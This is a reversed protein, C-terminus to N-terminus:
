EGRLPDVIVGLQVGSVQSRVGSGVQLANSGLLISKLLGQSPIPPSVAFRPFPSVSLDRLTLAARTLLRCRRLRHAGRERVTAARIYRLSTYTSLLRDAPTSVQPSSMLKQGNIKAGGRIEASAPAPDKISA